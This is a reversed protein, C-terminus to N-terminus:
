VGAGAVVVADYLGEALKRLRTDLNGRLPAVALDPRAARVQAERRPSGTGVRAGPPLGMFKKGDRSILADRFDGRELFCGYRLGPTLVTPLDKLSHIAARIRGQLLAEDLEKTFLGQVTADLHTDPADSASFRDGSTKIVELALPQSLCAKMQALVQGAQALALASGRTGVGLPTM